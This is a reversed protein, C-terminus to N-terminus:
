CTFSPISSDEILHHVIYNSRVQLDFVGVNGTAIQAGVLNVLSISILVDSARPFKTTFNRVSEYLEIYLALDLVPVGSACQVSAIALGEVATANAGTIRSAQKESSSAGRQNQEEQFSSLFLVASYRGSNLHNSNPSSITGPHRFKNAWSAVTVTAAMGRSELDSDDDDDGAFWELACM